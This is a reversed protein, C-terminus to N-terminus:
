IVKPYLLRKPIKAWPGGSPWKELPIPEPIKVPNRLYWYHVGNKNLYSEPALHRATEQNFVQESIVPHTTSSYIEVTGLIAGKNKRIPNIFDVARGAVKGPINGQDYQYLFHSSLESQHKGPYETSPAYIVVRGRITTNRTRVEITKLGEVILSAWPQRVALVRITEEFDPCAEEKKGALSGWEENCENFQTCNGCTKM